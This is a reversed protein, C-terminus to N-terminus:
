LNCSKDCAKEYIGLYAVVFIIFTQNNALKYCSSLTFTQFAKSL